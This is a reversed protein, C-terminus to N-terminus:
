KIEVITVGDGGETIAGNRFSSVSGHRSLQDHIAQRLAGTGKGHIITVSPLNALVADSVLREVEKCAEDARFGRVDTSARADLKVYGAVNKSQATQKIKSKSARRLQVLPLKFKVGNFEVQAAKSQEDIDIIVGIDQADGM